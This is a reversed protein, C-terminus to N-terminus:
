RKSGLFFLALTGPGSHAGIVPGVFNIEVKRDGCTERVIAALQEADALCDGHSIFITENGDLMTEKMRNALERIAAKRGRVKSVPILKGADDVHMIPKIQLMTGAIATVSSIRGGRRLFNLDDVTFWHCLNLKNEEVYDRVEEISAGAAKKQAALYVLMGQGLSACLTDVTLIKRGPYKEALGEAALRAANYTGSLGTSFGLYLVDKGAELAPLMASEFDEVNAASTKGMKGSRLMSYIRECTIERGDLYNRYLGGDIDVSLPVVALNLEDAMQATMDCCSDTMIIYEAM